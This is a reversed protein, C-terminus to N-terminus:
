AAVLGDPVLEAILADLVLMGAPTVCLREGDRRVLGLAALKLTWNRTIVAPLVSM